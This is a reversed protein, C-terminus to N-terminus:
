TEGSIQFPSLSSVNGANSLYSDIDAARFRRHGGRTLTCKLKNDDVLRRVTDQSTELIRAVDAVTLHPPDNKPMLDPVKKPTPIAKGLQTRRKIEETVKAVLDLYLKGIEESKRIEDFRKSITINFEPSTVIIYGQVIRLIVGYAGPNFNGM